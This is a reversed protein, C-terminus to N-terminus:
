DFCVAHLHKLTKVKWNNGFDAESKAIQGNRLKMDDQPYNNFNGCLGCMNKKYTGPVSVEVHSRGNWLM